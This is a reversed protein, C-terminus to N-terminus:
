RGSHEREPKSKEKESPQSKKNSKSNSSNKGEKASSNDKSEPRAGAPKAAANDRAEAGRSAANRTEGASKASEVGKGSFEGPKATAAVAPRGHNESALLSRNQSAAHEHSTQESTPQIHNEREAAREDATPQATTGGEGGNYSVRNVTTNNVVVKKDIYTSRVVTTNVNMVATNYAFVGHDWRGGVFGVGGYGFGYNVGGYFGIHPGWYGAHWAYAGGVFGWYGPTWLFGVRPAVIWTGPVWFYGDAGYAWYGPTWIYGAGPCVPQAYVPLAPPGIHISVGVSIQASATAPLALLLLALASLIFLHKRYM